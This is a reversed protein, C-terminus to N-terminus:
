NGREAEDVDRRKMPKVLVESIAHPINNEQALYL